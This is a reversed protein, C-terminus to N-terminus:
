NFKHNTVCPWEFGKGRVGAREGQSLSNISGGSSQLLADAEGQRLAGGDGEGVPLPSPHPPSQLGWHENATMLM